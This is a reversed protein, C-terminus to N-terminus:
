LSMRRFAYGDEDHEWDYIVAHRHELITVGSQVALSWIESLFVQFNELGIRCWLGQIPMVLELPSPQPLCNAMWQLYDELPLGFPKRENPLLDIRNIEAARLIQEQDSFMGLFSCSPLVKMWQHIQFM